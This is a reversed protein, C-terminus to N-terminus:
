SIWLMLRNKVKWVGSEKSFLYLHGTGCLWGCSHSVYVLAEDGASNYAPRSFQWFGGANPHKEYFAKWGDKKREGDKDRAFYQDTEDSPIISYAKPDGFAATVACRDGKKAKFDAVTEASPGKKSRSRFGWGGRQADENEADATKDLILFDKGRWAEEPHEPGGLGELLAAYVAHDDETLECGQESSSAVENKPPASQASACTVLVLVFVIANRYRM